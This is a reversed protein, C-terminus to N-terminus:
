SKKKIKRLNITFGIIKSSYNDGLKQIIEKEYNEINKREASKLVSVKVIKHNNFYTKLTSIFNNTIGQKGLQLQGILHM